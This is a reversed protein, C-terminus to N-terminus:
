PKLIITGYEKNIKSNLIKMDMWQQSIATIKKKDKRRTGNLMEMLFEMNREALKLQVTMEQITKAEM